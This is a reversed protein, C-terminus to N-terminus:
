HADAPKGLLTQIEARLKRMEDSNFRIHVARVIGDGDILYSTPMGVLGFAKPVDGAPDHLVTYNVPHQALFKKADGIEEDLNIAVISFNEHILEARLKEYEPLSQRCPECWSAWFDVFVVKGKFQDLSIRTDSGLAALSFAPARGGVDVANATISAVLLVVAFVYSCARIAIAPAPVVQTGARIRREGSM